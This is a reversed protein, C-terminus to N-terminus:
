NKLCNNIYNYLKEANKNSIDYNLACEDSCVMINSDGNNNYEFEAAWVCYNGNIIKINYEKVFDIKNKYNNGSYTVTELVDLINRVDSKWSIIGFTNESSVEIETKDTDGLKNTLDNNESPFKTCHSLAAEAKEMSCATLIMVTLVVLFYVIKKM